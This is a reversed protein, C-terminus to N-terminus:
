VEVLRRRRRRGRGVERLGEVRLVTSWVGEWRRVEMLWRGAAQRGVPLGIGPTGATSGATSDATSGGPQTRHPGATCGAEEVRWLLVPVEVEALVTIVM